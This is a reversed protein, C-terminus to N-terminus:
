VVMAVLDNISCIRVENLNKLLSMGRNLYM